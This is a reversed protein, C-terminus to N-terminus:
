LSKGVSGACLAKLFFLRSTHGSALRLTNCCEWMHVKGVKYCDYFPGSASVSTVVSETWCIVKIWPIVIDYHCRLKCLIIDKSFTCDPLTPLQEVYNDLQLETGCPVVVCHTQAAQRSSNVWALM